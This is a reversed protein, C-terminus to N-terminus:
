PQLRCVQPIEFLSLRLFCGVSNTSWGGLQRISTSVRNYFGGPCCKKSEVDGRTMQAEQCCYLPSATADMAFLLKGKANSSPTNRPAVAVKSLFADVENPKSRKDPLDDAM